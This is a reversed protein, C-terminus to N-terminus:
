DIRVDRRGVFNNKRSVVYSLWFVGNRHSYSIYILLDDECQSQEVIEGDEYISDKVPVNKRELLLVVMASDGPSLTKSASVSKLLYAVESDSLKAVDNTTSTQAYVGSTMVSILAVVLFKVITNM